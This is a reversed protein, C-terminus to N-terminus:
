DYVSIVSVLKHWVYAYPADDKTLLLWGDPTKHSVLSTKDRPLLGIQPYQTGPGARLRTPTLVLIEVTYPEMDEVSVLGTDSTQESTDTDVPRSSAVSVTNSSTSKAVGTSAASTSETGDIAGSTTNVGTQDTTTGCGVQVVLVVVVTVAALWQKM